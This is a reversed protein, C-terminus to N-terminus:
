QSGEIFFIIDIVKARTYFRDTPKGTDFDVTRIRCKEITEQYETYFKQIKALAKRGFASVGFGRKFVSDFAPVNGFVGLMIKTVLTDTANCPQLAYFIERRSALLLRINEPSYNDVDIEWLDRPTRAIYQILPEYFKISKQLLLSSGRLMGWSALYFSIQLCSTQIQRPDALQDLRRNERFHQFYNFCYDFSANRDTPMIGQSYNNGAMFVQINKEIKAQDM